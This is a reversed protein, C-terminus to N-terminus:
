EAEFTLLRAFRLAGAEDTVLAMPAGKWEDWFEVQDATLKRASPPKTGDKVEIFGIRRLGKDDPPTAIALDPCGNGIQHMHLVSCGYGRLAKVIAAQNGDVRAARMRDRGWWLSGLMYGTLFVLVGMVWVMYTLLAAATHAFRKSLPPKRDMSV